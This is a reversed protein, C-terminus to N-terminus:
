HVVKLHPKSKETKGQSAKKNIENALKLYFDFVEEDSVVHSLAAYFVAGFVSQDDTPKGGDVQYSRYKMKECKSDLTIILQIDGTEM